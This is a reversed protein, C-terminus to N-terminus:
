MERRRGIWRKVIVVSTISVLFYSSVLCAPIFWQLLFGGPYYLLVEVGLRTRQFLITVYGLLWLVIGAFWGAKLLRDEVALWRRKPSFQM